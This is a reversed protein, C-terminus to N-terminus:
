EVAKGIEHEYVGRAPVFSLHTPIDLERLMDIAAKKEDTLDRGRVKTHSEPSFGDLQLIVYVDRKKLAEAFARDKGIRLGNTVLTVRNVEKRTAVDIFELIHPHITPEGGSLTVADLTGEHDVLR